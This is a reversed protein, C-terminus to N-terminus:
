DSNILLFGFPLMKLQFSKYKEEGKKQLNRKYSCSIECLNDLMYGTREAINLSFKFLSQRNRIVIINLLIIKKITLMIVNMFM